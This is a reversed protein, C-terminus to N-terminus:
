WFKKFSIKLVNKTINNPSDIIAKATLATLKRSKITFLPYGTVVYKWYENNFRKPIAGFNIGSEKKNAKVENM